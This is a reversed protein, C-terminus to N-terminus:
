RNKEELITGIKELSACIDELIEKIDERWLFPAAGNLQGVSMKAEDLRKHSELGVFQNQPNYHGVYYIPGDTVFEDELLVWM